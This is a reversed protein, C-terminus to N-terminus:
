RAALRYGDTTRNLRVPLVTELALKWDGASDLRLVGSFRLRALKPDAFTLAQGTHRDILLAVQSLDADDFVLRGDSWAAAADVDAPGVRPTRGARYAEGPKLVVRDTASGGIPEVQLSGELLDVRLGDAGAPDVNFRTGLVTLRHDGAEVRFPRAPDKAVAYFAEGALLRVDRRRGDLRAEMRGGRSLTVQTGDALQVKLPGTSPAQFITPAPRRALWLGASTALGAVGAALLWRRGVSPARDQAATPQGAVAALMWAQMLGEARAARQPSSATLADLRAAEAPELPAGLGKLVLRDIEEDESPEARAATNIDTMGIV